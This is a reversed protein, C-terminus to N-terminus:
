LTDDRVTRLIDEQGCQQRRATHSFFLALVVLLYRESTHLLARLTNHETNLKLTKKEKKLIKKSPLCFSCTFRM